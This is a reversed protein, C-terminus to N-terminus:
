CHTDLWSFQLMIWRRDVSFNESERFQDIGDVDNESISFDVGFCPHWFKEEGLFIFENSFALYMCGIAYM